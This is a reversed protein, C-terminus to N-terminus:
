IVVGTDLPYHKTAKGEFLPGKNKEYTVHKDINTATTYYYRPIVSPRHKLERLRGFYQLGGQQTDHAVTNLVRTLDPIDRATGCSKLTSIIIDNEKLTEEKSGSIYVTSKLDPYNEKIVEGFDKCMDTLGFFVLLREGEQHENAFMGDIIGKNFQFYDRLLKKNRRISKEFETHSYRGGM